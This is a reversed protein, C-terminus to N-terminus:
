SQHQIDEYDNSTSSGKSTNRKKSNCNPRDINSLQNSINLKAYPRITTQLQLDTYSTLEEESPRVPSSITTHVTSSSNTKNKRYDMSAKWHLRSFFAYCTTSSTINIGFHSFAPPIIGTHSHQEFDISQLLLFGSPQSLQNTDVHYLCTIYVQVEGTRSTFGKQIQHGNEEAPYRNFYNDNIRTGFICSIVAVPRLALMLLSDFSTSTVMFSRFSANSFYRHFYESM